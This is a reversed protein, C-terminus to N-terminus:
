NPIILKNYNHGKLSYSDTKHTFMVQM